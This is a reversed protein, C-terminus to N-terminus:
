TVLSEPRCGVSYIGIHGTSSSYPREGRVSPLTRLVRLCAWSLPERREGRARRRARARTCASMGVGGVGPAVGAAFSGRGTGSDWHPRWARCQPTRVARVYM